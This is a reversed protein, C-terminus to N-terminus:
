SGVARAQLHISVRFGIYLGAILLHAVIILYRGGFLESYFGYMVIEAVACVFWIVPGWSVMMWLGMAAFPFLVALGTAAVQWHVPMLDFRWLSGEYLGILRVWYLIGFMLCYAAVVRLFWAFATEAATPRLLRPKDDPIM